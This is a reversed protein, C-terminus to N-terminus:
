DPKAGSPLEFLVGLVELSHTLRPFDKGKGISLLQAPTTGDPNLSELVVVASNLRLRKFYRTGQDDVAVVLRGDLAKLGPGDSVAKRTILFQGDLAIPEASRGKVKFLRAGNLTSTVVSQDALEVIEAKPNLPPISLRHAVFLTGVVKKCNEHKLSVIVPEAVVTPDVSQATLVAIEPHAEVHNYRRALLMDGVTAVVINRRHVQAYNSAILLDGVGAVPDLTGAALQYVSHNPLVVEEGADWEEISFLGDGAVGDTKAAAAVGIQHMVSSKIESRYGTPFPTVNKAWPFSRPEGYFSGFNDYVEFADQIQPQLTNKWFSRVDEAQAIGITEDDKHHVKNILNMQKGGGGTLTNILTEFPARDFPPTRATKLRVLEKALEGVTMDPISPGEGRLMCKILDECYIRVDGIYDRARSDNDAQKAEQFERELAGGNVVKAVRSAKNVGGILGQEGKLTQHDVMCQYFHREHTTLFLQVNEDSARDANALRAIEEAWKLKNRPDFTTQPDDLVVLPFPNGRLSSITQERLALLFAWLMARLWSTNAVQTADILMGSDFSGAVVVEKKELATQEYALREHHHIRKLIEKMRGSLSAISNASEAMVLTRLDKLPALAAAAAERREQEAAILGWAQAAAAATLLFKALEDLPEAKALAQELVILRGEISEAPFTEDSQKEGVLANWTDRFSQRNTAWWNALAILREFRGLLGALKQAAEPEGNSINPNQFTFEPLSQHQANATEAVILSIGTLTASFLTSTCFRERVADRYSDRPNMTALLDAHRKLNQTLYSLLSDSLERCVDELMREAQAADQKLEALETALKKQNPNALAGECIPCQADADHTHPPVFFRASIAKLRFKQDEAQRKHWRLATELKVKAEAIANPLKKFETSELAEKLAAWASFAEIGTTRQALVSRANNVATRITARDKSEAIDLTSSIESKLTALHASAEAGASAALTKLASTIDPIDIAQKSPLAFKLEKAKANAREMNEHFRTKHADAGNEKAYRLFRRGSHTFHTCGDAIDALRDLGTLVKVAEYLSNSKDGFGLRAIRAPMLLGIDTLEPAGTLRPDISVETVPDAGIPCVLKRFALAAEGKANTFTLRVWVEVPKNLETASEPYSAFAPWNGIVKGATNRVVIRQGDEDVPGDQDRIRKGTMAWIIASALSTKGSGNQGQLCWNEGRVLLDFNPGGVLTLGGFASAEVRELRWTESISATSPPTTTSAPDADSSWAALLGNFLTDSGQAVSSSPQDLLFAFLRRSGAESLTISGGKYTGFKPWNLTQGSLLTQIAQAFSIPM